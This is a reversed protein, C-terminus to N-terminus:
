LLSLFDELIFPPCPDHKRGPSIIAHTTIRDKTIAPYKQMLSRCLEAMTMLAIDTYAEGDNRNAFSLGLSYDNCNPVDDFVSVGAHWAKDGEKVFQYVNGGRGILFHYSVKSDPSTLWSITSEASPSADCHLVIATIPKMRRSFNPSPRWNIEM